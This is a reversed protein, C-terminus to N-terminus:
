FVESEGVDGGGVAESLLGDGSELWAAMDARLCSTFAVRLQEAKAETM